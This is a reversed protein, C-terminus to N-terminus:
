NCVLIYGGKMRLLKGLNKEANKLVEEANNYNKAIRKIANERSIQEEYSEDDYSSFYKM